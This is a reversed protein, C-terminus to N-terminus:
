FPIEDDDDLGGGTPDENTVKGAHGKFAEAGSRGGIREGNKAFLALQNLFAPESNIRTAVESADEGLAVFFRQSAANIIGHPTDTHNM